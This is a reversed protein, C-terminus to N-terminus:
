IVRVSRGRRIARYLRCQCHFTFAHVSRIPDVAELHRAVDSARTEAMAGDVDDSLVQRTRSRDGRQGLATAEGMRTWNKASVIPMRSQHGDVAQRKSTTSFHSRQSGVISAGTALASMPSRQRSRQAHAAAPSRPTYAKRLLGMPPTRTPVARQITCVRANRARDALVLPRTSCQGVQNGHLTLAPVQACVM